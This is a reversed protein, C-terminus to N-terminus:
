KKHFYYGIGSGITCVTIGWLIDIITMEMTWNTLTAYNTLDYFAYLIFGVLAGNLMAQKISTKGRIAWIYIAVPLLIYIMIAPIIRAQLKSKQVSEFLKNHYDYRYTLWAADMLGVSIATAIVADM